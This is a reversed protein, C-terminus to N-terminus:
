QSSAPMANNGSYKQALILSNKYRDIDAKTTMSAVVAKKQADTMMDTEFARPDVTNSFNKLYDAYGSPPGKYESFAAQQMRELAINTKLTDQVALQSIHTSPNGSFASALRTDSGAAMPSNSAVQTLYKSLEDYNAVAIKNPDFGPINQARALIFSKVNNLWETGPGTTTENALTLARQLPVIRQAFTGANQRDAAYQGASATMAQEQGPALSTYGVSGPPPASSAQPAPAAGPVPVVPSGQPPAGQNVQNSTLGGALPNPTNSYDPTSGGGVVQNTKAGYNPNPAGNPLTPRTDIGPVVQPPLGRGVTQGNMNLGGAGAPALPGSQMGGQIGAGNDVSVPGGYVARIAEPGALTAVLHSNIATRLATPGASDPPLGAIYQDHTNQDITGSALESDLASVVKDRTLNPDNSLGFAVQAERNARAVNLQQQGTANQTQMNTLQQQSNLLNQQLLQNQVQSNRYGQIQNLTDLPNIQPAAPVYNPPTIFDVM